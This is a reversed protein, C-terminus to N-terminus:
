PKNALMNSFNYKFSLQLKNGNSHFGDRFNDRRGYQYEIGFMTKETPYYLLNVLGYQGKRFSNELQLDTNQITTLSYGVSSSLLKSWKIEAFSFFGWILLAKGKIPKSANGPNSEPAIDTCVDALYNGIGEGFVGQLRLKINKGTNIVTSLNGGWGFASGSLNYAASDSLDKWRIGKAIAGVQVYGWKVTHRYHATLNPVKFEPVVNQLEISESYSGGDSIAGPRELAITLRQEKRQIALYRIQINLFFVRSSPGWYDLTVPFVDVDMFASPTQGVGFRGLQGYANILHFTTQGLDKGVGFLDFNFLTQLDGFKTSTHSQIGFRSQRFSYYVTGGPLFEEPDSPLKTPRMVDYWNPDITNFNYGADTMIYGFVELSNTNEQCYANSAVLFFLLTYKPM